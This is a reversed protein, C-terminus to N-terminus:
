LQEFDEPCIVEGEADILDCAWKLPCYRCYASVCQIRPPVVNNDFGNKLIVWREYILDEFVEMDQFLPHLIAPVIVGDLMETLTVQAMEMWAIYNIAVSEVEYNNRKLLWYYVALQVLHDYRLLEPIRMATKYDELRRYEPYYADIQGSLSVEKYKELQMKLRVERMVRTGEPFPVGELGRHILSGRTMALLNDAPAYYDVLRELVVRRLTTSALTSASPNGERTDLMQALVALPIGDINGFIAAEQLADHSPQLTGDKRVIGKLM